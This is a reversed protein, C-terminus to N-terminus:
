HLVCIVQERESFELFTEVDFCFEERHTTDHKFNNIFAMSFWFLFYVFKMVRTSFKFLEQIQVPMHFALLRQVSCGTSFGLTITHRSCDETSCFLENPSPKCVGKRYCFLFNYKYKRYFRSPTGKENILTTYRSTKNKASSQSIFPRFGYLVLLYFQPQVGQGFFLLVKVELQLVILPLVGLFIFIEQNEEEKTGKTQIQTQM